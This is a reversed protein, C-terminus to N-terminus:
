AALQKELSALFSRRVGARTIGNGGGESSLVFGKYINWLRYFSDRGRHKCADRLYDRTNNVGDWQARDRLYQATIRHYPNTFHDIDIQDLDEPFVLREFPDAFSLKYLNGVQSYGLAKPQGAGIQREIRTVVGESAYGWRDEFSMAFERESPRMKRVESALIMKRHGTKDYVRFQNPKQGSLLTQASRQSIQTEV